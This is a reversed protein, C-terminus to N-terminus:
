ILYDRVVFYICTQEGLGESLFELSNRIAICNIYKLITKLFAIHGEIKTIRADLHAKNVVTEDNSLEFDTTLNGSEKHGDNVKLKLQNRKIDQMTDIASVNNHFESRWLKGFSIYAM